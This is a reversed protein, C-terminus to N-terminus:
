ISINRTRCVITNINIMKNTKSSHETMNIVNISTIFNQCRFKEFLSVSIMFKTLRRLRRGLEDRMNEVCNMDPSVAPWELFDIGQNLLYNQNLRASYARANGQQFMSQDNYRHRQLLPVLM